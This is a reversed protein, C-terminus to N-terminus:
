GCPLAEFAMRLREYTACWPCMKKITLGQELCAGKRIGYNDCHNEDELKAPWNETKFSNFALQKLM